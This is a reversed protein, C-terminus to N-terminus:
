QRGGYDQGCGDPQEHSTGGRQRARHQGLDGSGRGALQRVGDGHHEDRGAQNRHLQDRQVAERHEKGRPHRDARRSCRAELCKALANYYHDAQQQHDDDGGQRGAYGRAEDSERDIGRGPARQNKRGGDDRRTTKSISHRSAVSAIPRIRSRVFMPSTSAPSYIPFDDTSLRHSQREGPHYVRDDGM